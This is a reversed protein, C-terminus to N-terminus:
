GIDGTRLWKDDTFLQKTAAENNYYGRTVNEGRIQINGIKEKDLPQDNDDCIRLDTHDFPVGLDVFEVGKELNSHDLFDVTEGIDLCSRKLYYSKLPADIKHASVGVSAEALGYSAVFSNENLHYKSLKSTFEQCLKFSIPEAGNVICKVASLNLDYQKDKNFSNLYYKVGFNPSFLTTAKYESAKSLWLLPRRVFLSTPMIYQNAGCVTNSLHFGIMGLDHTLPIWSLSRSDKNLHLAKRIDQVNVILNRHSLMVGKPLGTSGSSFQIFALDDASRNAFVPKEDSLVPYTSEIYKEELQRAITENTCNAILKQHHKDDTFLYPRKLVSWVNYLKELGINKKGVSLPVPIIGGIICSWFITLLKENDDTQIILEDNERLGHQQLKLLFAITNKVFGPYSVFYENDSGHIFLIGNDLNQELKWFYDILTPNSKIKKM